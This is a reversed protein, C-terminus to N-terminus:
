GQFLDITSGGFNNIDLDVSTSISTEDKIEDSCNSCNTQLGSVIMKTVGDM